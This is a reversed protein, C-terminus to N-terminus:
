PKLYVAHSMQLSMVNTILRKKNNLHTTYKRKSQFADRHINRFGGEKSDYCDNRENGM